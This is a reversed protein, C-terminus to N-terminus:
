PCDPVSPAATLHSSIPKRLSSAGFCRKDNTEVGSFSTSMQNVIRQLYLVIALVACSLHILASAIHTGQEWSLGKISDTAGQGAKSDPVNCKISHNQEHVQMDCQCLQMVDHIAPCNIVPLKHRSSAEMLIM